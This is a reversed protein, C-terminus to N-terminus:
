FPIIGSGSHSSLRFKGLSLPWHVGLLLMIRSHRNGFGTRAKEGCVLGLHPETSFKPLRGSKDKAFKALESKIMGWQRSMLVFHNFDEDLIELTDFLRQM